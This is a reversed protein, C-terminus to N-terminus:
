RRSAATSTVFSPCPPISYMAPTSWHSGLVMRRPNASSSASSSQSVSRTRFFPTSPFLQNLAVRGEFLVEELDKPVVGGAIGHPGIHSPRVQRPFLDRKSDRRQPRRDTSIDDGLQEAFVLVALSLGQLLLGHTRAIGMAVGLELIDGAQLPLIEAGAQRDEAHVGLLLLQQAIEVAFALGVGM